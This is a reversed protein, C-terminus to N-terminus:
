ALYDLPHSLEKSTFGFKIAVDVVVVTPASATRQGAQLHEQNQSKSQFGSKKDNLACSCERLSKQEKKYHWIHNKHHLKLYHLLLEWNQRPLKEITVTSSIAFSSFSCQFDSQNARIYTCIYISSNPSKFSTAKINWICFLRMNPLFHMSLYWIRCFLM